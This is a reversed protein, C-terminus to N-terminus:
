AEEDKMGDGIIGETVNIIHDGIREYGNYLDRYIIGARVDYGKEEISKMHGKRMHKVELNIADEMARAEQITVKSAETSLNQIMVDVANDVRGALKNLNDRQDQNLNIKNKHMREIDKSMRLIIDAVRELDTAISLLGRIELSGKLSVGNESIKVLFDNIQEELDDTFDEVKQIKMSLKGRRKNKQENSLEMFWKLMKKTMQGFKIVEKSAEALSMESPTFVGKNIFELRYEEDEEGKSKVSNRALKVLHPVFGILLLVNLLNFATHFAALAFQNEVGIESVPVVSDLFWNLGDLFWPMIIIMWTVGILNFLSHIRASRKAHVNAVLSALEATITTGINEGLIMAAAIDLPLGQTTLVITLTMAASSSQVVVTLITGVLVFLMRTLIGPDAFETLFSLIEPNSKIDPVAEKLEGLGMFLLAFGILVEGWKKVRDSSFFLMPFGIAIIPLAYNAIKIKFGILSVLWGTITTGINAGMMVGASEVLSILGANVFSVTMVTTASSSQLLGTILFGTLVGTYRNTTMTGLVRRMQSGAVLQLSESMIKMGFIFFGLAGIIRILDLIGFDM